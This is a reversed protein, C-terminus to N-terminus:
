EKLWVIVPDHDSSRYVTKGHHPSAELASPEDANIHWYFMNSVKTKLAPSAWAYDLTGSLGDFQYSYSAPLADALNQWHQAALWRMSDEQPYSNFDGLLLVHSLKQDKVWTDLAKAAQLRSAAWCGQGDKQDAEPGKKPCGGKSKFHNVVISISQGNRKDVFTQLLPPRHQRDFPATQLSQAGGQLEFRQINYFIASRISDSGLKDHGSYVFRFERGTPAQQNLARLLDSIAAEQGYGDNELETLALIDAQTALLTQVLQQRQLLYEAQDKAGRNSRFARGQGDGNFFNHLNLGAVAWTKQTSPLTPRPNRTIVDVPKLPHIRYAGFAYDLVGYVHGLQDGIRLTERNKLWLLDSPKSQYSGDDLILQDLKIAKMAAKLMVPSPPLSQLPHFLRQSSVRIQGFAALEHTDTVVLNAPLSVLMGEYAELQRAGTLPLQIPMPTPLTGQGCHQLAMVPAIQTMRKFEVVKGQLRVRQGTSVANDTHYVFVGESTRPNHDGESQQIFFGKLGSQLSATVIGEIVVTQGQLPSSAGKGQVQSIPTASQGCAGLADAKAMVWLPNCLSLLCSGQLILKISKKLM